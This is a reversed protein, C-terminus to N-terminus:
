WVKRGEVSGYIPLIHSFCCTKSCFVRFSFEGCQMFTQSRREHRGSKNGGKVVLHQCGYRCSLPPPPSVIRTRGNMLAAVAASGSAAAASEPGRRRRRGVWSSSRADNAAPGASAHAPLAGNLCRAAGRRACRRRPPVHSSVAGFASSSEARVLAASVDPPRRGSTPTRPM